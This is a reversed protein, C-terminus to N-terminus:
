LQIDMLILKLFMIWQEEEAPGTMNETVITTGLYKELYPAIGRAAVDVSGGVGHTIIM